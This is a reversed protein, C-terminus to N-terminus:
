SQRKYPFSRDKWTIKQKWCYVAYSKGMLSQLESTHKESRLMGSNGGTGFSLIIPDSPSTSPKVGGFHRPASLGMSGYFTYPSTVSSVGAAKFANWNRFLVNISLNACRVAKHLSRFLTTYPFLTDTRTSRPPRRIM